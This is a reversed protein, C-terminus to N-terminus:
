TGPSHGGHERAVHARLLDAGFDRERDRWVAHMHNADDQTNDYEVLFRPGTIRYYHREGPDESGAWAFHLRDIGADRLRDVERVAVEAPVRELYVAVLQELLARQEVGMHEASLGGGPLEDLEPLNMTLIDDPADASVVARARQAPDLSRLLDRAADEEEGLPRSVIRDGHRVVAPNAGLFAPTSAVEDGVMTGHVSVHHGEFRLAWPDSRSPEDFLTLYYLAPDRVLGRQSGRRGETEDLVRELGIIAQVKAFAQPSLAEALVQHALTQQGPDMEGLALGARPAPWYFWTRRQVEDAFPLLARSRQQGELADLFARAAEALRETSM